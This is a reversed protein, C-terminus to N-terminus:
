MSPCFFLYETNFSHLLISFYLINCKPKVENNHGYPVETLTHIIKPRVRRTGRIFLLGAHLRTEVSLGITASRRQSDESDLTYFCPFISLVFLKASSLGEQFAALKKAIGFVLCKISDQFKMVADVPARWQDVDQTLRIWSM